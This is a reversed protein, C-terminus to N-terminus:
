SALGSRVYQEAWSLVTNSVSLLLIGVIGQRFLDGRSLAIRKGTLACAALVIPGAIIYRIGTMLEPPFHRVGVAIALYTSGWFVYVLAFAIVIRCRLLQQATM